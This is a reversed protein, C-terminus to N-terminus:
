SGTGERKQRYFAETEVAELLEKRNALNSPAWEHITSYFGCSKQFTNM